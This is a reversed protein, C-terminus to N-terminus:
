PTRRRERESRGELAELRATIDDHDRRHADLPARLRGALFQVGARVFVSLAAFFLLTFLIRM